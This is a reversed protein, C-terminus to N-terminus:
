GRAPRLYRPASLSTASISAIVSGAVNESATSTSASRWARVHARFTAGLLPKMRQADTSRHEVLFCRVDQQTLDQLRQRQGVIEFITSIMLSARAPQSSARM